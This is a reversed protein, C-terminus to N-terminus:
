SLFEDVCGAQYSDNMKPVCATLCAQLQRKYERGRNYQQHIWNHTETKVGVLNSLDYALEPVEEREQIHHVMLKVRGRSFADLAGRMSMTRAEQYLNRGAITTMDFLEEQRGAKAMKDVYLLFEDLGAARRFVADRTAIWKKNKYFKEYQPSPRSYNKRIKAIYNRKRECMHEESINYKRKCWRCVRYVAMRIM